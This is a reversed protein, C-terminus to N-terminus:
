RLWFDTHYPNVRAKKIVQIFYHKTAGQMLEIPSCALTLKFYGNASGLRSLIKAPNQILSLKLLIELLRQPIGPATTHFGM